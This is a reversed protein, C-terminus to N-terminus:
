NKRVDDFPLHVIDVILHITHQHYINRSLSGLVGLRVEMLTIFLIFWPPPCCTYRDEYYKRDRKDPLIQVATVHVLKEFLRMDEPILYFNNRSCVEGDRQHVACKFSHSRKGSM